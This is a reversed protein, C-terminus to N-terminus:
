KKSEKDMLKAFSSEEKVVNLILHTNTHEVNASIHISKVMESLEQRNKFRALILADYTGTIDYVAFVNPNNGIEKEVDLMKGKSVTIEIIAIINYGLKEFDIQAGYGKIIGRKELNEVHKKITVPSKKLVSAIKNFTERGDENLIRLIEIDIDDISSLEFEKM